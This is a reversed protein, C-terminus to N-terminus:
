AVFLKLASGGTKDFKLLPKEIELLDLRNNQNVQKSLNSDSRLFICIIFYNSLNPYFQIITQSDNLQKYVLEAFWLKVKRGPESLFAVFM